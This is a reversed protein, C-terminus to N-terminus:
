HNILNKVLKINKNTEKNFIFNISKKPKNKKKNLMIKKTFEKPDEILTFFNKKILNKMFEYGPVKLVFINCNFALAEYLSTSYVGLIWKSESLYKYLDSSKDKIVTIKNKRLNKALHEIVNINESPHFKFIINIRKSLLKRIKLTFNTM